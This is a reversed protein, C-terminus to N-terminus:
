KHPETKGKKSNIKGWRTGRVWSKRCNVIAGVCNFGEECKAKREFKDEKEKVEGKKRAVALKM